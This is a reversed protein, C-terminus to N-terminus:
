VHARGIEVAVAQVTTSAPLVAWLVLGVASGLTGPAVPVYGVGLVTAVALSLFPRSAEESQAMWITSGSLNLGAVYTVFYDSSM